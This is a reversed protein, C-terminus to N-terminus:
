IWIILLFRTAEDGGLMQSCWVNRDLLESSNQHAVIFVLHNSQRQYHLAKSQAVSLVCYYLKKLDVFCMHLPQAFEHVGVM